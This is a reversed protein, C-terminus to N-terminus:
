QVLTTSYNIVGMDGSLGRKESIFLTRFGGPQLKKGEFKYIKEVSSNQTVTVTMLQSKASFEAAENPNTLIANIAGVADPTLNSQPEDGPFTQAVAGSSAAMALLAVLIMTKM